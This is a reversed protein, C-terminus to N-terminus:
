CSLMAPWTWCTWGNRPMVNAAACCSVFLACGSFRRGFSKGAAAIKMDPVRPFLSRKHASQGLLVDLVDDTACDLAVVDLRRPDLIAGVGVAVVVTEYQAPVGVAVVHGPVEM